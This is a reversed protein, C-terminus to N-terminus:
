LKVQKLTVPPFMGKTLMDMATRKAYLEPSEQLLNYLWYCTDPTLYTGGVKMGQGPQPTRGDNIVIEIIASCIHLLGRENINSLEIM